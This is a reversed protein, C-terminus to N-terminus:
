VKRCNSLLWKLVRFPGSENSPTRVQPLPKRRLGQRSSRAPQVDGGGAVNAVNAVALSFGCGRWGHGAEGECRRYGDHRAQADGAWGSGVRGRGPGRCCRRQQGSRGVSRTHLAGAVLGHAPAWRTWVGAQAVHGVASASAPVQTAYPADARRILAGSGDTLRGGGDRLRRRRQQVDNLLGRAVQDPVLLVRRTQLTHFLALPLTAPARASREKPRTHPQITDISARVQRAIADAARRGTGGIRVIVSCPRWQLVRSTQANPPCLSTPPPERPCTRPM